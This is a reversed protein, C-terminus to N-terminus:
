IQHTPHRCFYHDPPIRGSVVAIGRVETTPPFVSTLIVDDERNPVGIEDSTPRENTEENGGPSRGSSNGFGGSLWSGGGLFPVSSNRSFLDRQKTDVIMSVTAPGFLTAWIGQSLSVKFGRIFTCQNHPRDGSGDFDEMPPGAKTAAFSTQQWSCAHNGAITMSSFNLSFGSQRSVNSFSATGWSKVKDCGTVLYISGNAAERGRPGNVYRYWNEVNQAAYERFVTVNRLDVQSGGEPLTLIAGESASCQFSYEGGFNGPLARYRVADASIWIFFIHVSNRRNYQVQLAQIYDKSRGV